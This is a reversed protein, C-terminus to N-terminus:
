NGSAAPPQRPRLMDILMARHFTLLQARSIPSDEKLGMFLLGGLVLPSAALSFHSTLPGARMIGRAVAKDIYTQDNAIRSKANDLFWRKIGAPMRQMETVILQFTAFKEPDDLLQYAHELYLDVFAELSFDGQQLRANIAQAPPDFARHLLEVFIEEKSHFHAYIGGKSLGVREAIREISTESYGRSSFEALAIALIAKKREESSLYARRGTRAGKTSCPEGNM